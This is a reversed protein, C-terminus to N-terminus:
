PEAVEYYILHVSKGKDQAPINVSIDRALKTKYGQFTWQTNPPILIEDQDPYMSSAMFIPLIHVGPMITLQLFCPQDFNVFQSLSSIYFNEVPAISASIFAPEIFQEGATKNPLFRKSKVARTAHLSTELRPAKSLIQRLRLVETSLIQNQRLPENFQKAGETYSTIIQKDDESLQNMFPGYLKQLDSKPAVLHTTPYLVHQAQM